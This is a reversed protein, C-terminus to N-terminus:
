FPLIRSSSLSDASSPPSPTKTSSFKERIGAADRITKRRGDIQVLAYRGRM